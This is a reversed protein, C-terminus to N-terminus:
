LYVVVVISEITFFDNGFNCRIRNTAIVMIISSIQNNLPESSDVSLVGTVM